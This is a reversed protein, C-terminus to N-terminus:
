SGQRTEAVLTLTRLWGEIPSAVFAPVDAEAKTQSWSEAPAIVTDRVVGAM